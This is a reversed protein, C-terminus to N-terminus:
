SVSPSALRMRRGERIHHLARAIISESYGTEVAMQATDKRGLYFGHEVRRLLFERENETRPYNVVTGFRGAWSM